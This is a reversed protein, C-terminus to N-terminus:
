KNSKSDDYGWDARKPSSPAIPLSVTNSPPAKEAKEAALPANTKKASKKRLAEPLAPSPKRGQGQSTLVKKIDIIDQKIAAAEHAPPKHKFEEEFTAITKELMNQKLYTNALNAWNQWDDRNYAIAIKFEHEADLYRDEKRYALGLNTHFDPDDPYLKIAEQLDREAEAYRGQSLYRNARNYYPLAASRDPKYPEDALVHQSFLSVLLGHLLFVPLSLRIPRHVPIKRDSAEDM